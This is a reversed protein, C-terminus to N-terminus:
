LVLFINEADPKGSARTPLKEKAGASIRSKFMDRYSAVIDMSIQCERQTCGLYVHDLFSTPEGLDVDEMLFQWTPEVNQKKGAMKSITWMCLFSCDEQEISVIRYKEGDLHWRFLKSSDKGCSALWHTDTCIENVKCWQIKLIQGHIQAMQTTASTDM